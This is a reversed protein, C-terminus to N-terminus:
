GARSDEGCLARMGGRAVPDLENRDNGTHYNDARRKVPLARSDDAPRLANPFRRERSHSRSRVDQPVAAAAFRRAGPHLTNQLPSPTRLCSGSSPVPLRQLSRGTIRTASTQDRAHGWRRPADGGPEDPSTTDRQIHFICSAAESRRETEISGDFHQMM